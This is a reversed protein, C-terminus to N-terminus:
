LGLIMVFFFWCFFRSRLGSDGDRHGPILYMSCKLLVHSLEPYCLLSERTYLIDFLQGIEGYSERIEYLSMSKLQTSLHDLFSVLESIFSPSEIGLEIRRLIEHITKM